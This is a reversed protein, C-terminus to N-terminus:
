VNATRRLRQIVATSNEKRESKPKLAIFMRGINATPNPGGAGVTPNVYDVAPDSRTIQAFQRQLDVMGHFSIDSSGETSASIFGTDETPFFGKPIIVYLWVSLALTAITVVLMVAKYRLVRDLAWEYARLGAKFVAEFGRLVINQKEGERHARLVRACLM